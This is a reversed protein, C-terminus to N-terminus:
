DGLSCLWPVRILKVVHLFINLIELIQIKSSGSWCFSIKKFKEGYSMIIISKCSRLPFAMPRGYFLPWLLTATPWRAGLLLDIHIHSHTQTYTLVDTRMALSWVSPRNKQFPVAPQYMPSLKYWNGPVM